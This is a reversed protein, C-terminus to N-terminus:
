KKDGTVIKSRTNTKNATVTSAENQGTVLDHHTRALKTLATIAKSINSDATAADNQIQVLKLIENRLDVPSMSNKNKDIFQSQETLLVNYDNAAQNKLETLDAIELTCINQVTPDAQKIIAPLNKRVKHEVIPKTINDLVSFSSSVQQQTIVWTSTSTSKSNSSSQTLAKNKDALAQLDKGQALAGITTVYNNLNKINDVRIKLQESPLFDVIQGPQYGQTAYKDVLIAEQELVHVSNVTTYVQQVDVLAPASTNSFSIIPKSWKAYGCGTLLISLFLLHVSLIKMCMNICFSRTASPLQMRSLREIGPTVTWHLLSVTAEAM